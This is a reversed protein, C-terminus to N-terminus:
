GRSEPFGYAPPLRGEDDTAGDDIGWETDDGPKVGPDKGFAFGSPDM